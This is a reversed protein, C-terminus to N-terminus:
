IEDENKKRGKRPEFRSCYGKKNYLQKQSLRTRGCYFNLRVQECHKCNICGGTPQNLETM